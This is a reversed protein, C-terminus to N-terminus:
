EDMLLKQLINLSKQLTKQERETLQVLILSELWEEGALRRQRIRDKFDDSLYLLTKRGDDPDSQGVIYGGQKLCNVTAGMSQSRMGELQALDSITSPENRYLHILVREQTWSLDDFNTKEKLKRHAQAILQRLEVALQHAQDQPM